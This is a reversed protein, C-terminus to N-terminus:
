QPYDMRPPETPRSIEHQVKARETEARYQDVQLKQQELQFKAAAEQAKLAADQQKAQLEMMQAPDAEPQGQSQQAQAIREAAEQAGPFDFMKLVIDALPGAAQPFARILEILAERGEERQTTFSPGTEVAVDYKGRSLDYIRLTEGLQEQQRAMKAQMAQQQDEPAISVTETEGEPGLVRIIRASNYVHPILDVLIRGAHKIARSLNDIFHFTSVDGERQRAMIAKGSTENSQIGLSADQIGLIAKMDDSASLAMQMDAMAASAPAQRVPATQGKYGIFAHPESNATAWKAEDDGRFADEPGIYPVRPALAVTETMMSRWYNYNRQADMAPRILSSFWRKGEVTVEDGYVPVIPIYSGPWEITELVQKGSLIYCTVKHKKIPRRALVQGGLSEIEQQNETFSDLEMVIPDTQGALMVMLVESEVIERKWWKGILAREGDWWPDDMSEFESFDVIDKGPYADQYEVKTLPEIEWAVNWDSSDAATSCPDGWISLPNSVREFVIDQDFTDDTSYRTNIKFYGRGSGVAYNMATDYAVDADSAYEINKILGGYIEATEPDGSSDVPKVKIQPKNMRADNVVQRIFSQTKDLVLCPRGETRRKQVVQEPWQERLWVFRMDEEQLERNETDTDRCLEFSQMAKALFDDTDVIGTEVGMDESPEDVM